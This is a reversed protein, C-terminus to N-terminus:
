SSDAEFTAWPIPYEPLSKGYHKEVNGKKRYWM